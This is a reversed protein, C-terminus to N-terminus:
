NLWGVKIQVGAPTLIFSVGNIGDGYPNLFIGFWDTNGLNDRQSLEQPIEKPNEDYLVASVYIATNDYLVKVESKQTPNIGPNPQNQVFDTAIPAQMWDGENLEGDIKFSNQTRQATLNKELESNKTQAHAFSIFFVTVTLVTLLSKKM